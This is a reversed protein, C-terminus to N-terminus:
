LTCFSWCMKFQSSYIGRWYCDPQGWKKLKNEEWEILERIEMNRYKVVGWGRAKGIGMKKLVLLSEASAKSCYSEWFGLCAVLISRISGPSLLAAPVLGLRLIWPFVVKGIEWLNLMIHQSSTWAGERNSDGVSFYVVVTTGTLAWQVSNSDLFKKDAYHIKNPCKCRCAFSLFCSNHMSFKSNIRQPIFFVELYQHM